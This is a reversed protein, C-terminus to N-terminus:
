VSLKEHSKKSFPSTCSVYYRNGFLGKSKGELPTLDVSWLGWLGRHCLMVLSKWSIAYWCHFTKADFCFMEAASGLVHLFQRMRFHCMHLILVHIWDMFHIRNCTWGLSTASTNILSDAFIDTHSYHSSYHSLQCHSSAAPLQIPQIPLSPTICTTKAKKSFRQM